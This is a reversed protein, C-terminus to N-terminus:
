APTGKLVEIEPLLEQHAEVTVDDKGHIQAYFVPVQLGLWDMKSAGRRIRRRAGRSRGTGDQSGKDWGTEM